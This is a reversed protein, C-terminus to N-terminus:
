FHIDKKKQSWRLKYWSLISNLGAHQEQYSFVPLDIERNRDANQLWFKLEISICKNDSMSRKSPFEKWLSMSISRHCKWHCFMRSLFAPSSRSQIFRRSGILDKRRIPELPPEHWECRVKIRTQKRRKGHSWIALNAETAIRFRSTRQARRGHIRQRNSPHYAPSSMLNLRDNLELSLSTNIWFSGNNASPHLYSNCLSTIRILRTNTPANLHIERKTRPLRRAKGSHGLIIPNVASSQNPLNNVVLYRKGIKM